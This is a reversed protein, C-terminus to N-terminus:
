GISKENVYKISKADHTSLYGTNHTVMYYTRKLELPSSTASFCLSYMSSYRLLIAVSTGMSILGTLGLVKERSLSKLDVPGVSGM